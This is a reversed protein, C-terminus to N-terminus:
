EDGNGGIRDEGFLYPAHVGEWNWEPQFLDILALEMMQLEKRSIYKKNWKIEGLIVLPRLEVSFGQKKAQRMSKYLRQDIKENEMNSKHRKFREEFSKTTMGVYILREYQMVDDIVYIGYIGNQGCKVMSKNM